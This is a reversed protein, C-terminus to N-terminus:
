TRARPKVGAIMRTGARTRVGARMRMRMGQTFIRNCIGYIGHTKM